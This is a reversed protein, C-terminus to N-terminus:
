TLQSIDGVPSMGSTIFRPSILLPLQIRRIMSVTMIPIMGIFFVFGVISTNMPFIHGSALLSLMKLSLVMILSSILSVMAVTTAAVLYTRKIKSQVKLTKFDNQKKM